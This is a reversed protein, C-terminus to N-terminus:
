KESQKRKREQKKWYEIEEKVVAYIGMANWGHKQMEEIVSQPLRVEIASVVEYPYLTPPKM